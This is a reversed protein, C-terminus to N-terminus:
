TAAIATNAGFQCYLVLRHRNVRQDISPQDILCQFEDISRDLCASRDLQDIAIGARVTVRM